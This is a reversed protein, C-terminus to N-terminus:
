QACHVAFTVSADAVGSVCKVTGRNGDITFQSGNNCGVCRKLGVTSYNASTCGTTGCVYAPTTTTAETEMFVARFGSGCEVMTGGGDMWNFAGCAVSTSTTSAAPPDAQAPRASWVVGGAITALLGLRLLTRGM